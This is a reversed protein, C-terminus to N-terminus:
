ANTFTKFINIYASENKSILEQFEPKTEKLNGNKMRGPM